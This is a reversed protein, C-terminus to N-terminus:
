APEGATQLTAEPVARWLREPDFPPHSRDRASVVLPQMPWDIALAPDDFAVGRDLGPDYAATVMYTVLTRDTLTLFGHAFGPPVVLLRRNAESLEMGRWRGLTRSGPRVDVIVDFIAGAVCQVLKTEAARGVQLHLGRLTRAKASFSHNAQAIPCDFGLRALEERCFARAFFGREDEHPEAALLAAAALPREVLRM